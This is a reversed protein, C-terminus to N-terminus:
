GRRTTHHADEDPYSGCRLTARTRTGTTTHHADEDYYSYSGHRLTTRTRTTTTLSEKDANDDNDSDEDQKSSITEDDHGQTTHRRKSIMRTTVTTARAHRRPQQVNQHSITTLSLPDTNPSGLGRNVFALMCTINVSSSRFSYHSPSDSTQLSVKRRRWRGLLPDVFGQELDAQSEMPGRKPIM